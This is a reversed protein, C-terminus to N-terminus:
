GVMMLMGILVKIEFRRDKRVDKLGAILESVRSEWNKKVDNHATFVRKRVDGWV